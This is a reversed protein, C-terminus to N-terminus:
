GLLVALDAELSRLRGVASDSADCLECAEMAGDARKHLLLLDLVRVTRSEALATLASAVDPLNAKEGPFEVVVYDVPGIQDLDVDRMPDVTFCVGVASRRWM